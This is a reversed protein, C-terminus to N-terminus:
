LMTSYVNRHTLIKYFKKEFTFPDRFDYQAEGLKMLDQSDIYKLKKNM